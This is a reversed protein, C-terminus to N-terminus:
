LIRGVSHLYLGTDWADYAFVNDIRTGYKENLAHIMEGNGLYIGVHSISGDSFFILDGEQWTSVNSVDVRNATSYQEGTTRPIEYGFINRYIWQVFGACDWGTPSAGGWVYPYGEYKRIEEIAQSIMKGNSGVKYGDIETNVAMHGWTGGYPDNQKYFYYWDNGILQWGTVMRGYESLYYWGGSLWLWGKAMAGSDYFYYYANDILLWRSHIMIGSDSPDLYYWRGNEQLWGKQLVDNIYYYYNGNEYVWGTRLAGSETFVYEKGDIVKTCNALMLMPYASNETDFYYWFQGINQWGALLRGYQDAWYWGEEQKIWGTLMNGSKGFWYTGGAIEKKEGSEMLGKEDFYYWFQGIVKWGVTKIGNDDLWYWGEPRELWGTLLNGSKGFYYEKGDITRECNAAMLGMSTVNNDFYYTFVGIQRWGTQLRGYVDAWYWGEPRNIWGTLMNGSEGFCYIGGAIDRKEGSVMLGNEAFYYWFQGIMKWGISKAGKSDYYYWGEDALHWGTYLEKEEENGYTSMKIETVTRNEVAYIDQQEQLNDNKDPVSMNVGVGYEDFCWQDGEIIFSGGEYREGTEPSFYFFQGEVEQWGTQVIGETDFYYTKEEINQLGVLRNGFEDFYCKNNEGIEGNWGTVFEIEGDAKKKGENSKQLLEASIEVKDYKLSESAAFVPSGTECVLIATLCAGIKLYKKVM